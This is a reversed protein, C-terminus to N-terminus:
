GPMEGSSPGPAPPTAPAPAQAALLAHFGSREMLSHPQAQAGSITLRGGREAVAKLIEELGELGTTDLAFLDRLDLHVQVGAPAAEIAAVLPDIRTTAGFFLAGHLQWTLRAPEGEPVAQPDARFLESMRRVFLACALVLGVEVAVTLDFVVTLLFTGLLLLRYHNSFHKLRRFEHWEGMNWAVHLLIGALVALPIHLALPAALLVIVGLTVAHVIGAVPSTAGARLNTVTRAITGTVPMGGFFPVVFNAVGQAMLEQNPDHKRLYPSTALQDAVRACLLSEIAGLLAITITPAVLLRVTEWSFEPLAFVPLSQPIGGFRTGLTEVPYGMSHSLATLTILAVVPAPIRAFSRVSYGAPLRLVPSDHMFLRPWLFLGGLCAAGLGLAYPNVSGIHLAMVHVQSFFNGPMKEIALGLFDKLQSVAILVAIGNTFGIVISVPVFRVLSGLRLLGLAFLLVGACATSILLNAVGYREVIGYVIVIFAGAPGGSQVRSGGLSSILFGAIIATFIGAEPKLGSAIAFAMALPLAVVAVTLGAALDKVFRAREYGALADLLRPRFSFQFAM